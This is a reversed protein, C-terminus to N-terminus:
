RITLGNLINELEERTINCQGTILYKEYTWIYIIEDDKFSLTLENEHLISKEVYANETDIIYKMKNNETVLIQDLIFYERGNRYMMHLDDEDIRETVVEMGEPLYGFELPVFQAEGPVTSHYKYETYETVVNEIVDMLKHYGAVVAEPVTVCALLFAILVAAISRKAYYTYGLFVRYPKIESNHVQKILRQMKAEFEASFTHKPCHAKDPLFTMEITDALAAARQLQVDNLKM